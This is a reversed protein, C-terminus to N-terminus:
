TYLCVAESVSTGIPDILLLDNGAQKVDGVAELYNIARHLLKADTKMKRLLLTSDVSSQDCFVDIEQILENKTLIPLEHNASKWESVQRLIDALAEYSAPVWWNHSIEDLSKSLTRKVSKMSDTIHGTSYDLLLLNDCTIAGDAIERVSLFENLIGSTSAMTVGGELKDIQSVALLLSGRRRDGLSSLFKSWYEWSGYHRHDPKGFSDTPQIIMCLTHMSSLLLQHSVLFEVQGAFDVLDLRIDGLQISGDVKVVGVTSLYGKALLASIAKAFAKVHISEYGRTCMNVLYESPEITNDDSSHGDKCAILKPLDDGGINEALILDVAEKSDSTIKRM